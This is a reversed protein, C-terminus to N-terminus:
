NVLTLVRQPQRRLQQQAAFIVAANFVIVLVAHAAVIWKGFLCSHLLWAAQALSSINLTASSFGVPISTMVSALATSGVLLCTGIVVVAS